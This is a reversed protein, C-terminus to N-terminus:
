QEVDRQKGRNFTVVKNLFRMIHSRGIFYRRNVLSQIFHPLATSLSYSKIKFLRYLRTRLMFSVFFTPLIPLYNFLFAIAYYEEPNRLSGGKNTTGGTLPIGEEINTLDEETLIGAKKATEIIATKPYYTLWFVMIIDPKHLNYFAASEEQRELTDGPIGLMHDVHVMIGTEKLDRIVEAIRANSSKRHLVESCMDESLSQVGIQVYVCGAASLAEAKRRDLYHPNAVCSFPLGIEKKYHECFEFIWDSRTTFSDDIFSIYKIPYRRMADVLEDIVDSVSRQRFVSRGRLMHLYSNCCYSCRYPCGRSTMIKYAYSAGKLVAFFPFKHPFPLANLDALHGEKFEGVLKGEKKFILGPIPNDPLSFSDNRWGEKLFTIFSEEAEGIAVCDVNPNRIVREPVATPHIGGFVTIVDPMIEKLMGACQLQHRYNDTVCSFAAIHPSTAAIKEAIRRFSISKEAKGLIADNADYYVFDADHGERLCVAMLYEVGLSEYDPYAFTIRM